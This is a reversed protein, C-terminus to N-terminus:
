EKSSVTVTSCTEVNYEIQTEEKTPYESIANPSFSTVEIFKNNFISYSSSSGEIFSYNLGLTSLGKPILQHLHQL